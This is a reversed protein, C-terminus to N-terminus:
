SIGSVWHWLNHSIWRIATLCQLSLRSIGIPGTVYIILGSMYLGITRAMMDCDFLDTITRAVDVGITKMTLDDQLRSGFEEGVDFDEGTM